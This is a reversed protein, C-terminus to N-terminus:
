GSTGDGTEKRTYEDAFRKLARSLLTGVSTSAVGVADAIEQYSFGEQRMLLVERDRSDVRELAARVAGVEESREAERLPNSSNEELTIGSLIRRRTEGTRARDRILNTAVKFLWVRLGAEPGRPGRDLLRVFAEQAADDAADPDGTLRHCYRYLPPYVRDFLAEIDL